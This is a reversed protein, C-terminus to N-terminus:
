FEVVFLGALDYQKALDLPIWREEYKSGWSDSIAISEQDENYGTVILTHPAVFNEKEPLSSSPKGNRRDRTYNDAYQNFVKTSSMTWILPVGQDIHEAIRKINLESSMRRMRLGQQGLYRTTEDRLKNVRTGGEIRTEGLMALTYMDAPIGIYRLYREFTAPVCFGSDGQSVMPINDIVTDGNERKEVNEYFWNQAKEPNFTIKGNIDAFQTRHIYLSLGFGEDHSLLFASDGFDWRQMRHAERRGNYFAQKRSVGLLSTLNQQIYASTTRIRDDLQERLEEEHRQNEPKTTVDKISNYVVLFYDPHDTNAYFFATRASTSHVDVENSQSNRRARGSIQYSAMFDTKSIRRWSLRDAVEDTSREWLASGAFLEFGLMDNIAEATPSGYTDSLWDGGRLHDQDEQSLNSIATEFIQGGPSRLHIKGDRIKLMDAELSSGAQSTWTRADAAQLILLLLLICKHTLHPMFTLIANFGSEDFKKNLNEPEEHFLILQISWIITGIIVQQTRRSIDGSVERSKM